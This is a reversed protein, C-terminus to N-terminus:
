NNNKTNKYMVLSSILSILFFTIRIWINNLSVILIFMITNIFICINEIKMIEGDMDFFATTFSSCKGILGM